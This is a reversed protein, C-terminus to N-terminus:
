PKPATTSVTGAAAAAPARCRKEPTAALRSAKPRVRAVQALKNSRMSCVHARVREQSPEGLAQAALYVLVPPVAV